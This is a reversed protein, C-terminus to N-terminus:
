DFRYYALIFQVERGHLLIKETSTVDVDKVKLWEKVMIVKSGVITECFRVRQFWRWGGSVRRSLDEVPDYDPPVQKQIEKKVISCYCLDSFTSRPKKQSRGYGGFVQWFLPM